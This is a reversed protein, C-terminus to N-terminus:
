SGRPKRGFLSGLLTVARLFARGIRQRLSPNTRPEGVIGFDVPAPPVSEPKGVRLRVKPQRTPKPLAAVPVPKPAPLSLPAKPPTPLTAPPLISGPVKPAPNTKAANAKQRQKWWRAALWKVQNTDAQSLGIVDRVPLRGSRAWNNRAGIRHFHLLRGFQNVWYFEAHDAFARGRLYAQVRSLGHAPQLVPASPDAEGMESKRHERTYRTIPKMKLGHRDLGKALSERKVHLTFDVVAKWFARREKEPHHDFTPDNPKVDRVRFATSINAM